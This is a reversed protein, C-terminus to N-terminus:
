RDAEPSITELHIRVSEALAQVNYGGELLSVLRGQCYQEAVDLLLQTLEGFDESELGLSGIPDAAHADYGASLLILEPRCKRAAQELRTQFGALYDRRAIGFEVPWNWTAGLGSGHGTENEAGTGPYFPWRHASFFHVQGSEYFAAQTGNGHHVDWDVILLRSLGCAGRAVGAAIAVNNFLCFGMASDALAHHGPPRCLCVAVKHRGALVEKVASVASGAARVAVEYSLKSVVTDAEIRGGGREAFQELTRIYDRGHILELETATAPSVNGSAFRQLLKSNELVQNIARLRQPSEPHQGTEHNLFCPDTFLIAM